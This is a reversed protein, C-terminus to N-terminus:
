TLPTDDRDLQSPLVPESAQRATARRGRRNTLHAGVEALGWVVLMLPWYTRFTELLDVRGFNALTWIIGVAVLALGATFGEPSIARAM